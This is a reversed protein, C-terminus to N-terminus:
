EKEVAELKRLMGKVAERMYSLTKKMEVYDNKPIKVMPSAYCKESLKDLPDNSNVWYFEYLLAHTEPTAIQDVVLHAYIGDYLESYSAAGFNPALGQPKGIDTARVLNIVSFFKHSLVDLSSGEDEKTLRVSLHYTHLPEFCLKIPSVLRLLERLLTKQVNQIM